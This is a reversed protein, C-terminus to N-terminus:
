YLGSMKLYYILLYNIIWQNVEGTVSPRKRQIRIMKTEELNFRSNRKSIPEQNSGLSLVKLTQSKTSESHPV